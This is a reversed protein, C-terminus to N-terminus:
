QSHPVVINGLPRTLIGNCATKGPQRDSVLGLQVGPLESTLRKSAKFGIQVARASSVTSSRGTRCSISPLQEFTLTYGSDFDSYGYGTFTGNFTPKAM